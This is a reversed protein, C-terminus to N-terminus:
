IPDQLGAQPEVEFDTGGAKDSLQRYSTQIQIALVLETKQISHLVLAQDINEIIISLSESSEM